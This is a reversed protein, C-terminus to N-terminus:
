LEFITSIVSFKKLSTLLIYIKLMIGFLSSLGKIGQSYLVRKFFLVNESFLSNKMSYIYYYFALIITSLIVK